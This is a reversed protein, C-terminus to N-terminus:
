RIPPYVAEKSARERDPDLFPSIGEPTPQFGFRTRIKYLAHGLILDLLSRAEERRASAYVRAGEGLYAVEGHRRLRAFMELDEDRVFDIRYGGTASMLSRRYTAASGAVVRLIPFRATGRNAQVRTMLWDVTRRYRIVRPKTFIYVFEGGTASLSPNRAYADLVTSAHTPPYLADADASAYIGGRAADLGAQRAAAIGPRPEDIVKFGCALAIERTRDTSNNDVVIREIGAVFQSAITVLAGLLLKEENYAPLIYSLDPHKATPNADLRGRVEACRDALEEETHWRSLDLASQAWQPLTPYVYKRSTLNSACV